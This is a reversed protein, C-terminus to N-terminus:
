PLARAPESVLHKVADALDAFVRTGDPLNGERQTKKGKGTLVLMPVCGVRAGAELDRLSDGIAPVGELSVHFRAAIETFMGTKPKRCDCKQDATHPCFFVADIRGGQRFVLEMMKDNIANLTAMDFLGRGIGSQNTAVAVRFGNQNLRAIAEISGPIPKWEDPTKIFQASDFNIVGDRDLIVLKTPANM